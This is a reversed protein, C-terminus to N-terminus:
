EMIINSVEGSLKTQDVSEKLRKYTLKCYDASIDIGISNRGTKEAALLTTGSGVLPDLVLDGENSWTLIHDRALAEPFTAPHEFAKKDESSFGFGTNYRWINNRPSYHSVAYVEKKKLIGDVERNSKAGWTTTGRWRNKKDSILNVTKPKGKSLIFMYEFIQSYRISKNNAPYASGNKEYIMTDHLNFGIEKFYLAQKFSTGTESGDVVADGVVWVIVGGKKITRLLEKATNKFDFSYGKYDRLNDYPPSTLVLDISEKDLTHMINVCDGYIIKHEPM